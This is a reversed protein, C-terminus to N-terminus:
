HIGNFGHAGYGSKFPIFRSRRNTQTPAKASSVIFQPPPPDEEEVEGVGVCLVGDTLESEGEFVVTPLALKVMVM